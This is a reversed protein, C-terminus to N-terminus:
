KEAVLGELYALDEPTGINNKRFFEILKKKFAIDCKEEESLADLVSQATAINDSM